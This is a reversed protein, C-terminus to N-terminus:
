SSTASATPSGSCATPPSSPPIRAYAVLVGISSAAPSAPWWRPRWARSSWIGKAILSAALCASLGLVAGVSLDIGGTLVVLTLGASMCSSCRRRACSSQHPQGLDSFAPQRDALLMVLAAMVASARRVASRLRARGRSANCPAVSMREAGAVFRARRASIIVLGVIAVQWETGVGILNLGNRLVGVALAGIVTGASAAAGKRSPPAASSSPPSPM